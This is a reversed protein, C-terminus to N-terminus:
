GTEGDNDDTSMREIRRVGLGKLKRALLGEGGESVGDPSFFVGGYGSNGHKLKEYGDSNNSSNSRYSSSPPIHNLPKSSPSPIPSSPVVHFETEMEM